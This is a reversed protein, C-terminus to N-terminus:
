HLLTVTAERKVTDPHPPFEAQWREWAQSLKLQRMRNLAGSMIFARRALEARTAAARERWINLRHRLISLSHHAIM